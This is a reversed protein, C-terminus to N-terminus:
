TLVTLPGLYTRKGHPILPLTADGRLAACNLPPPPPSLKLSLKFSCSLYYSLSLSVCVCVCVCLCVSLFLYLCHQFRSHDTEEGEM